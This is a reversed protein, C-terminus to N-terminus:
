HLDTAIWLLRAVLRVACLKGAASQLLAGNVAFPLRPGGGEGSSAMIGSTCLADDLDAPHVQAGKEGAVSFEVCSNGPGFLLDLKEHPREGPKLVCVTYRPGNDASVQLTALGKSKPGFAVGSIQLEGPGDHEYICPKDPTLEAGWFTTM